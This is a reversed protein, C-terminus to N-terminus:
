TRKFTPQFSLTYTNSKFHSFSIESHAKGSGNHICIIKDECNSQPVHIWSKSTHEDFRLQWSNGNPITPYGKLWINQEIGLIWLLMNSGLIYPAWFARQSFSVMNRGNTYVKIEPGCSPFFFLTEKFQTWNNSLQSSDRNDFTM